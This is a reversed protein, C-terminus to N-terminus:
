KIEIFEDLSPTHISEAGDYEEIRYYNGEIEVVELKSYCTSAEKGLTEVCKVLYPNHREVFNYEYDDEVVIDSNSKLWKIAKDSLDFGGFCANIVVKNM